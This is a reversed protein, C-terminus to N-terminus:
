FYPNYEKEFSLTTKDGHGPYITVDNELTKLEEISQRMEEYNGGLDWRGISGKFVFDGTFMINEEEFYFSISDDSHGPNYRVKFKFCDIEYDKELLESRDYIPCDYKDKLAPIAGIHDPHYHTVLIALPRRDGIADIIKDGDAGPDIVLCKNDEILIYCNADLNGVTVRVIKM